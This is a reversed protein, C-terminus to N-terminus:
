KFAYKSAEAERFGNLVKKKKRSISDKKEEFWEKEVSRRMKWDDRRLKKGKKVKEFDGMREGGGGRREWEISGLRM